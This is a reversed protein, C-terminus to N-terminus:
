SGDKTELRYTAHCAICVQQVRSLQGLTHMPDSVAVADSAIEAIGQRMQLMMLRFPQPLNSRMRQFRAPNQGPLLPGSSQEASAPAGDGALMKARVLPPRVAEALGQVKAMDHEALAGLTSSSYVLYDRMQELLHDRDEAPLVIPARGDSAARAPMMPALALMLAVMAPVTAGVAALRLSRPHETM